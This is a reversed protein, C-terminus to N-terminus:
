GDDEGSANVAKYIETARDRWDMLDSFRQAYCWAPPWHFVFGITAIAARM